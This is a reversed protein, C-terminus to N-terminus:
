DKKLVDSEPTFIVPVNVSKITGLYHMTVNNLFANVNVASPTGSTAMKVSYPCFKNM